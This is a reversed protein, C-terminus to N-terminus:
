MQWRWSRSDSGEPGRASVETTRILDPAQLLQLLQYIHHMCHILLPFFSLALVKLRTPRPTHTHTPPPPTPQHNSQNTQKGSLRRAASTTYHRQSVIQAGSPANRNEQRQTTGLSTNQPPSIPAWSDPHSQCLPSTCAACLHRLHGRPRPAEAASYVRLSGFPSLYSVVRSSTTLHLSTSRSNLLDQDPEFCASWSPRLSQQTPDPVPPLLHTDHAPWLASPWPGSM